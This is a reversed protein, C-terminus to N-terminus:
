GDEKVGMAMRRFVDAKHKYDDFEDFSPAGPCLLVVQAHNEPSRAWGVAESFSGFRRGSGLEAAVRVGSPGSFLPVIHPHARLYQALPVVDLRRDSGGLLVCLARGDDLSQLTAIVADPATALSDDIWTRGDTSPVHEMRHPLPRFSRIASAVATSEVGLFGSALAALAVNGTQHRGIVPLSAAALRTGNSWVLDGREDVDVGGPGVKLIRAQPARERVRGVLESNPIVVVEPGHAISNLKDRYYAETSGHWTQHEPFLSTLVVIRPSVTLSHAQYSSLEMVVVRSPPSPEELVSVGINGRLSAALGANILIHTLLAATTSKGKSGTVAVTRSANENMWLDTLSTVHVDAVILDSYLQSTVPVGPSKIVVEAARLAAVAAHGVLVGDAHGPDATPVAIDFGIGLRKLHKAVARGERGWGWVVLRRGRLESFRM